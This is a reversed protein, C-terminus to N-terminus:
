AEAVVELMETVVGDLDVERHNQTLCIHGQVEEQSALSYDM